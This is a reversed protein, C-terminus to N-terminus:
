NILKSIKQGAGEVIKESQSQIQPKPHRFRLSKNNKCDLKIIKNEPLQKIIELYVFKRRGDLGSFNCGWALWVWPTNPKIKIQSEMLSNKPKMIAYREIAKKPSPERLNFLNFIEIYGENPRSIGKIDYARLVCNEIQIMTKDPTAEKIKSYGGKPKAGGPNIMVVAGICKEMKNELCLYTKIRFTSDNSLEFQAYPTFYKLKVIKAM